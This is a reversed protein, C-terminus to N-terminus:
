MGDPTEFYDVDTIIKDAWREGDLDPDNFRQKVLLKQFFEPTKRLSSRLKAHEELENKRRERAAIEAKAQREADKKFQITATQSRLDVAIGSFADVLKGLKDQVYRVFRISEADQASPTLLAPAHHAECLNSM